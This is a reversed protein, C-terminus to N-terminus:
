ARTFADIVDLMRFTGGDHTRAAVFDYSWVHNLREPRLRICSGDTLWLRSKKPQTAPVKLKTPSVGWQPREQDEETGGGSATALPARVPPAM